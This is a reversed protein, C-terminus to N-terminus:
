ATTAQHPVDLCKNGYVTLTGSSTSTWQQNAGGSCDYIQLFTGDTQSSNPVDLCRGSGVGKLAGNVDARAPGASLSVALAAVSLAAAALAAMLSRRRNSITGRNM